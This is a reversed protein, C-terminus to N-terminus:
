RTLDKKFNFFKKYEENEVKGGSQDAMFYTFNYHFPGKSALKWSAVFEFFKDVSSAPTSLAWFTELDDLNIVLPRFISLNTLGKEEISADLFGDFQNLLDYDGVYGETVLIPIIKKPSSKYREIYDNMKLFKGRDTKGRGILDDGGSKFLLRHLDDLVGQIGTNYLSAFRYYETTFEFVIIHDNTELIADPAGAEGRTIKIAPFINRMLFDFYHEILYGYQGKFEQIKTESLEKLHWFFGECVGGLLFRLDIICFEDKNIRFIPHDFFIQFCEYFGEISDRRESEIAHVMQDIDSSLHEVTAIFGPDKKFNSRTIYFSKIKLHDFGFSTFVQNPKSERLLPFQLFWAFIEKLAYFYDELSVGTKKEFNGVAECLKDKRSSEVNELLKKYIYQYRQIRRSFIQSSIEPAYYYPYDRMFCDKLIVHKRDGSVRNIKSNILMLVKYYNQAHRINRNGTINKDGHVRLRLIESIFYLLNDRHWLLKNSSPHMSPGLVKLEKRNLELLKEQNMGAQCTMNLFASYCLAEIPDFDKILDAIVVDIIGEGRLAEVPLVIGGKPVTKFLDEYILHTIIQTSPPM